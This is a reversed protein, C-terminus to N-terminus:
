FGPEDTFIQTAAMNMSKGDTVVNMFDTITGNMNILILVGLFSSAFVILADRVIIKLPKLEKDVYKMEVFKAICFFSTILTAVFFLKEM